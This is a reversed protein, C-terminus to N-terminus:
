CRFLRAVPSLFLKCYVTAPAALLPRRAVPSLSRAICRYSSYLPFPLRALYLSLLRYVTAPTSATPSPRAVPLSSHGCYNAISILSARRLFLFRSGGNLGSEGGMAREAIDINRM